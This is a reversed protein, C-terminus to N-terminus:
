KQVKSIETVKDLVKDEDKSAYEHIALLCEALFRATLVVSDRYNKFDGKEAPLSEAAYIWRNMDDWFDGVKLGKYGSADWVGHKVFGLYSVVEYATYVVEFFQRPVKEGEFIIHEQRGFLDYRKILHGVSPYEKGSESPLYEEAFSENFMGYMLSLVKTGMSLNVDQEDHAYFPFENFDIEKLLAGKNLRDEVTETITKPKGGVIEESERKLNRLLNVSTFGTRFPMPMVLNDERTDKYPTPIGFSIEELFKRYEPNFQRKGRVQRVFDQVDGAKDLDWMGLLAAGRKMRPNAMIFGKLREGTINPIWGIGGGHERTFDTWETDYPSLLPTRVRAKVSYGLEHHVWLILNVADSATNPGGVSLEPYLKGDKEKWRLYQGFEATALTVYDFAIGMRVALHALKEDNTLLGGLRDKTGLEKEKGDADELVKQKTEEYLKKDDETFHDTSDPLNLIKEYAGNTLLSMMLAQWRRLDHGSDVTTHYFLLKEPFEVGNVKVMPVNGEGDQMGFIERVFKIQTDTLKTPLIREPTTELPNYNGLAHVAKKWFHQESLYDLMRERVSEKGEKGFGLDPLYAKEKETLNLAAQNNTLLTQFEDTLLAIRRGTATQLVNGMLWADYYRAAKVAASDTLNVASIWWSLDGNIQKLLAVKERDKPDLVSHEAQVLSLESSNQGRFRDAPFTIEKNHHLAEFLLDGIEGVRFFSARMYRQKLLEGLEKRDKDKEAARLLDLTRFLPNFSTDFTVREQQSRIYYEEPSLGGYRDADDVGVQMRIDPLESKWAPQPFQRAAEEGIRFKDFHEQGPGPQLDHGQPQGPGKNETM